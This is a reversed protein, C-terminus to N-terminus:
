SAAHLGRTKAESASSYWRLDAPDAKGVARHLAEVNKYYVDGTGVAVVPSTTREGINDRVFSTIMEEVGDLATFMRTGHATMEGIIKETAGPNLRALGDCSKREYGTATLLVPRPRINLMPLTTDLGSYGTGPSMAVVVDVSRDKAADIIAITSGISAGILAVRAQDIEPRTAVWRRAAELDYHMDRVVIPDHEVVQKRLEAAKAGGSQGHGRLDFALVAFGARQLHPILPAWSSRDSRYMHLLIAVPAPVAEHAPMYYDGVIEVHDETEFKVVQQGWAAPVSQLVFISVFLTVARSM